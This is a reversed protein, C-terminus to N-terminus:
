VAEVRDHLKIKGPSVVRATIGGHGRVANYGGEGFAEEMRSCPHCLGTMQLVATGIRFERAKLAQLNIGSVVINRRLELPDIKDVHLFAAINDIHEAQILTVSRNGSRGAYHDSELGTELVEVEQLVKMKKRKEPRAGIWEVRGKQPLNQILQEVTPKEPM